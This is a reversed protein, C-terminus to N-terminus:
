AIGHRPQLSEAQSLIAVAYLSSLYFNLVQSLEPGLLRRRRVISRLRIHDRETLIIALISTSTFTNMSWDAHKEYRTGSGISPPTLSSCTIDRLAPLLSIVKRRLPTTLAVRCSALRPPSSPGTKTGSRSKFSDDGVDLHYCMGYIAVWLCCQKCALM